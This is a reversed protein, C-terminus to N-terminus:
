REGRKWQERYEAINSRAAADNTTSAFWKLWQLDTQAIQSLTKGKHVGQTVIYDRGRQGKRKTIVAGAQAKTMAMAAAKSIGLRELYAVQKDTAGGRFKPTEQGAHVDGRGFPDVDRARYQAEARLKERRAVEQQMALQRRQEAEERKQKEEEDLQQKKQWAKERIDAAEGTEAMERKVIDLLEDPMDGALVDATSVLKHKGSNGVFDLVLMHPKASNAIAEQREEATVYKDVLGPVPRTGRGLMQKYLSESKTPRAMAIVHVGPADFGETGIGCLCLWQIEGAKYRKVIEARIQDDTDGIVAYATVGPYRNLVEAQREAQEVSACFVIGQRGQAEAIAPAAVAHLMREQKKLLEIRENDSMGDSSKGGLMAAAVDEDKLDREGAKNKRSDCKSFDLGDVVIYKQQIPVLWGDDIAERIQIEYACHDAICGLSLNDARNPTATILLAKIGSNGQSFYKWVRRYSDSAAHHAEDFIIGDFHGPNLAEMRRTLTQVSACLVRARDLIGHGMTGERHQGMEVGPRECLHREITDQTQYIIERLHAIFLWRGEGPWRCIIEAALVTKGMGTPLVCMVAQYTRWAEYICDSAEVQYPRMSMAGLGSPRPVIEADIVQPECDM